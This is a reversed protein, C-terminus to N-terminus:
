EDSEGKLYTVLTQLLAVKEELISVRERLSLASLVLSGIIIGLIAAALYDSM